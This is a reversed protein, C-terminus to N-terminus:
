ISIFPKAPNLIPLIYTLLDLFGPENKADNTKIEVLASFHYGFGGIPCSQLM